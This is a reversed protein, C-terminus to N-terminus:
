IRTGGIAETYTAVYSYMHIPYGTYKNILVPSLTYNFRGCYAISYITCLTLKAPSCLLQNSFYASGTCDIILHVCIM